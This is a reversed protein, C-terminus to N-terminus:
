ENNIISNMAETCDVKRFLMPIKDTMYVALFGDDTMKAKFSMKDALRMSIDDASGIWIGSLIEAVPAPEPGKEASATSLYVAGNDTLYLDYIVLDCDLVNRIAQPLTSTDWYFSWKGTLSVPEPPRNREELIARIEEDTKEYAAGSDPVRFYLGYTGAPDQSLIAEDIHNLVIPDMGPATVTLVTEDLAWTGAYNESSEPASSTFTESSFYARHDPELTLTNIRRNTLNIKRYQVWTGSPDALASATFLVVLALLFCLLKKM